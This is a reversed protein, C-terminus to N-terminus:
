TRWRSSLEVSDESEFSYLASLHVAANLGTWPAKADVIYKKYFKRTSM